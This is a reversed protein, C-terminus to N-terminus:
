SKRLSYSVGLRFTIAHEQTRVYGPRVQLQLGLPGSPEPKVQVGVVYQLGLETASPAGGGSLWNAGVSGGVYPTVSGGGGPQLTVDVSTSTQSPGGNEQKQYDLAASTAVQVPDKKAGWTVQYQAGGGWSNQHTQTTRSWNAHGEIAQQQAGLPAAAAALLAAIALHRM